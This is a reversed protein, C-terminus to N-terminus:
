DVRQGSKLPEKFLPGTFPRKTRVQSESDTVFFPMARSSSNEDPRFEIAFNPLTLSGGAASPIIVDYRNCDRRHQEAM